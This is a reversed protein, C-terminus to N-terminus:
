SRGHRQRIINWFLDEIWNKVRSRLPLSNLNFFARIIEANLEGRAPFRLSGNDQSSFLEANVGDKTECHTGSGDFGINRVRSKVPFLCFANNRYHAFAWRIAWSDIEGRMQRDLMNALDDGGRNFIKRSARDRRFLAYDRVDWDVATWRNKWTGWGWSSSRYSFYADYKYNDPILIPFQFGTVSFVSLDNQYFDLASSIYSLFDPSTVIDDELVIVRDRNEFAETVGSIISRALGLNREREVIRISAFGEATRVAKRVLNVPEAQEPTKPGDCFVLLEVKHALSNQALAALTRRVHEPRNYVFLAVTIFSSM